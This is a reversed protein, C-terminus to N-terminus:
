PTIEWVVGNTLGSSHGIPGDYETTGYINGNADFIPRGVPSGGDLCFRGCLFEYLLSYNWDGNGNPMLKFVSGADHEHNDSPTSGYLNGEGDVVLSDHPGLEGTFGHITELTWSGNSPTLQFVTGGGNQGGFAAAGYLRGSQDFVLGAIPSWGDTGATFSYLVSETWGSGSPSLEFVTGCGPVPACDPTGGMTTTGYLNGARDFIVGADPEGGDGGDTFKYLVSETWGSESPSLEFVTGSGFNGGSILGGAQTTGYLNGAHDFVLDGNVPFAGDTGGIFTHLVTERWSCPEVACRPPPQLEFVTGCGGPYIGGCNLEGGETTTGYLNGVRDFILGANPEGGDSGGTFSHLVTLVWGSGQHSLRFVTGAGGVGGATTTGYLNGAQDLILGAYPNIGAAGGTAFSHIIQFTQAQARIATFATLLLIAMMAFLWKASVPIGKPLFTHSM